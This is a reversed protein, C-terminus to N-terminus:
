STIPEVEFKIALGLSAAYHLLTGVRIGAQSAEIKSVMPQSCGLRDALEAQTLNTAIRIDFLGNQLERFSELSAALAKDQPTGPELESLDIEMVLQNNNLM